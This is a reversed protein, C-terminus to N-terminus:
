RELWGGALSIKQKEVVYLVLCVCPLMSPSVAHYKYFDFKNNRIMFGFDKIKINKTKKEDDLASLPM